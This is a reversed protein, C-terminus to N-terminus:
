EQQYVIEGAVLTMVVKANHIETLPIKHLDRDLIVLDAAKGAKLTGVQDEQRMQFAGNVTYAKLMDQLSVKEEPIFGTGPTGVAMRTVGVEIADLPNMSTVSWDSGGAVTAGTALVSNMAYNWRAREKSMLPLTLDTM